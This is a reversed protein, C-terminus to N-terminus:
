DICTKPKPEERARVELARELATHEVQCMM